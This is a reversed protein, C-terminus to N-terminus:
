LFACISVRPPCSPNLPVVQEHRSAQDGTAAAVAATREHDAMAKTNALERQALEGTHAAEKQAATVTAAAQRTAEEAAAREDECQTRWKSEVAAAAAKGAAEVKALARAHEVTM